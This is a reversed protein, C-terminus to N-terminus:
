VLLQARLQTASTFKLTQFGAAQAARLNASKDDILLYQRNLSAFQAQFKAYAAPQPKHIYGDSASAGVAGQFLQFLEPYRQGLIALSQEGINSFILSQYGAQQLDQLLALMDPKLRQHNIVQLLLPIVGQLKPYRTAIALVEQEVVGGAWILKLVAYILGPQFAARLVLLKIKWPARWLDRIGAWPDFKLIVGHLDFVLALQQPDLKPQPNKHPVLYDIESYFTYYFEFYHYCFFIASHM